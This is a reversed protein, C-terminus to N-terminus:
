LFVSVCSVELVLVVHDTNNFDGFAPKGCQVLGRVTSLYYEYM